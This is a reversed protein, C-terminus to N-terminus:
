TGAPGVPPGPNGPERTPPFRGFLHFFSLPRKGSNRKGRQSRRATYSYVTYLNEVTRSLWLACIWPLVTYSSREPCWVSVFSRVGAFHGRLIVTVGSVSCTVRLTIRRQAWAFAFDRVHPGNKSETILGSSKVQVLGLPHDLTGMARPYPSPPWVFSFVFTAKNAPTEHVSWRLARNRKRSVCFVAHVKTSVSIVTRPEPRCVVCWGSRM